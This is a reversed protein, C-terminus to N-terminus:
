ALVKDVQADRNKKKERERGGFVALFVSWAVCSATVALGVLFPLCLLTALQDMRVPDAGKGDTVVREYPGDPQAMYDFYKLYSGLFGVVLAGLSVVLLLSISHKRKPIVHFLALLFVTLGAVGLATPVLAWLGSLYVDLGIEREQLYRLSLGRLFDLFEVLEVAVSM